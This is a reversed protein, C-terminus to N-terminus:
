GRVVLFTDETLVCRAGLRWVDFYRSFDIPLEILPQMIYRSLYYDAAIGYLAESLGYIRRSTVSYSDRVEDGVFEQVWSNPLDQTLAEDLEESTGLRVIARDTISYFEDNGRERCFESLELLWANAADLVQSESGQSRPQLYAHSGLTGASLVSLVRSQMEDASPFFSLAVGIEDASLGSKFLDLFHSSDLDNAGDCYGIWEELLTRM